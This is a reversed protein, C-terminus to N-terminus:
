VASLHAIEFTSSQKEDIMGFHVLADSIAKVKEETPHKRPQKLEEVANPADYM